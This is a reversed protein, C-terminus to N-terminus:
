ASTDMADAIEREATEEDVTQVTEVFEKKKAGLKEDKFHQIRERMETAVSSTLLHWPRM